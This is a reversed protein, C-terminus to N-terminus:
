PSSFITKGLHWHELLPGYQGHVPDQAPLSVENVRQLASDVNTLPAMCIDAEQGAPYAGVVGLTGKSAIKKHSVGAPVVIVDGVSDIVTIGQEGGFKITVEGSYIGLAEHAATHFHHMAMIGNRWTNVWNHQKFLVEFSAAPDSGQVAVATLYILLPYRPNNPAFKNPLILHRIVRIM